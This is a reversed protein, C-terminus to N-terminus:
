WVLQEHDIVIEIAPRGGTEVSVVAGSASVYRGTRFFVVVSLKQQRKLREQGYWSIEIDRDPM